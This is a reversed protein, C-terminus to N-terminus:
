VACSGVYLSEMLGRAHAFARDIPMCRLQEHMLDFLLSIHQHLSGKVHLVSKMVPAVGSFMYKTFLVEFFGEFQGLVDNTVSIYVIRFGLGYFQLLWGSPALIPYMPVMYSTTTRVHLQM